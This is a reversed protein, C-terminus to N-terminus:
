QHAQQQNTDNDSRSVSTMVKVQKFIKVFAQRFKRNLLGYLIPNTCSGFWLCMATFFFRNLDLTNPDIFSNLVYPTYTLLCVVFIAVMM